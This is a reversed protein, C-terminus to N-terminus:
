AWRFARVCGRRHAAFCSPDRRTMRGTYAWYLAEEEVYQVTDVYGNWLYRGAKFTGVCRWKASTLARCSRERWVPAKRVERRVATNTYSVALKSTMQTSLGPAPPGPTVTPPTQQPAVITLRSVASAFLHMVSPRYDPPGSASEYWEGTVQWYYDGPTLLQVRICGRNLGAQTDSAPLYDFSRFYDSSLRDSGLALTPQSDVQVKAIAGTVASRFELPICGDRSYQYVAGDALSSSPSPWPEAGASAAPVLVGALLLGVLKRVSRM